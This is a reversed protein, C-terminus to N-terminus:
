VDNKVDFLEPAQWRVSGGRSGASSTSTWALIQPDSMGSLGFDALRARGSNDILINPRLIHARNADPYNTLYIRIDGAEMWPSVFCLRGNFRFLGYFPLVNVHELQGWLISEQSIQKLLYEIRTSQYVRIAKLCVTQGEFRGKYIDAFGGAEVPLRNDQIIDQLEYCAPYLQSRKALRQTAVVLHRRFPVDLEPKDLL